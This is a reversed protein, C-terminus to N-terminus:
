SITFGSAFVYDNQIMSQPIMFSTVTVSPTTGGLTHSVRYYRDGRSDAPIPLVYKTGAVAARIITVASLDVAVTFAETDSTQLTAVYTEDANGAEAVVDLSLVVAMPEGVGLNGDIGTDVVNTSVATATLAQASSFNGLADLYM